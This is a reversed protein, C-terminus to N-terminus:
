QIPSVVQASGKGSGMRKNHEGNKLHDKYEEKNLSVHCSCDRKTKNTQYLIDDANAAPKIESSGM